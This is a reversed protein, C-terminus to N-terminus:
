TRIAASALGAVLADELLGAAVNPLPLRRRAQFALHAAAVATAAGLLGGLVVNGDEEHAIVGGVIAGMVARATLPAADIRNGIRSTKDAILEGAALVGVVNMLPGPHKLALAAPGAMTRMGTVAGLLLTKRLAHTTM